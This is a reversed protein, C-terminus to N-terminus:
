RSPMKPEERTSGVGGGESDDGNILAFSILASDDGNVVAVDVVAGGGGGGGAGVGRVPVFLGRESTLSWGMSTLSSSSSTTMVPVESAVFWGVEELGSALVLVGLVAIRSPLAILRERVRGEEM